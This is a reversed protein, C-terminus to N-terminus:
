ATESFRSTLCRMNPSSAASVLGSVIRALLVDDMEIVLIAAEATGCPSDVADASPLRLAPRTTPSNFAHRTGEREFSLGDPSWKKLGTGTITPWVVFGVSCHHASHLCASVPRTSRLAAFTQRYTTVHEPTQPQMHYLSPSTWLRGPIRRWRM